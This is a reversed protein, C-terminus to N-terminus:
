EVEFGEESLMDQATDRAINVAGRYDQDDFCEEISDLGNAYIASDPLSDSSLMVTKNLFYDVLWIATARSGVTELKKKIVLENKSTTTKM